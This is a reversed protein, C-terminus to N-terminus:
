IVKFLKKYFNITKKAKASGIKKGTKTLFGIKQTYIIRKKANEITKKLSWKQEGALCFFRAIGIEELSDLKDADFLIKAEITEPKQVSDFSHTLICLIIKDAEKKSYKAKKLLKKTLTNEKSHKEKKNLRGLDHLIIAPFLIKKDAKEIKVMEKAYNLVRQIHSWDHSFSNMKSYEKETIKNLEKLNGM